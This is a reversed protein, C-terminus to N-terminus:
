MPPAYQNVEDVLKALGATVTDLINLSVKAPISGDPAGSNMTAWIMPARQATATIFKTYGFSPAHSTKSTTRLHRARQHQVVGKPRASATRDM